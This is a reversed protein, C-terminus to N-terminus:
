GRRKFRAYRLLSYPLLLLYGACIASLTWWPEVLLAAFLLGVFALVELRIGRRPRLSTWSPTAINSIMLVAITALWIGVLIPNRLEEM